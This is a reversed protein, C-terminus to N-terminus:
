PRGHPVQGACGAAVRARPRDEQQPVLALDMLPRNDSFYEQVVGTQLRLEKGLIGRFEVRDFLSPVVELTMRGVAQRLVFMINPDANM